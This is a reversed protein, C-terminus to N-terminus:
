ADNIDNAAVCLKLNNKRKGRLTATLLKFCVDALRPKVTLCRFGFYMQWEIATLFDMRTFGRQNKAEKTEIPKIKSRNGRKKEPQCWSSFSFYHPFLSFWLLLVTGCQFVTTKTKASLSLFIGKWCLVFRLFLPFLLVLLVAPFLLPLHCRRRVRLQVSAVTGYM